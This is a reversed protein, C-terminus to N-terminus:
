ALLLVFYLIKISMVTSTKYNDEWMPFPDGIKRTELTQPLSEFACAEHLIWEAYTSSM